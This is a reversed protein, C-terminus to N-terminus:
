PHSKDIKRRRVTENATGKATTESSKSANVSKTQINVRFSKQTKFVNTVVQRTQPSGEHIQGEQGKLGVDLKRAVKTQDMIALNEGNNVHITAEYPQLGPYIKTAIKFVTSVFDNGILEFIHHEVSNQVIGVPTLFEPTLEVTHIVPEVNILNCVQDGIDLEPCHMLYIATYWKHSM